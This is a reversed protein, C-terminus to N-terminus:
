VFVNEMRDIVLETRIYLIKAAFYSFYFNLYFINRVINNYDIVFEIFKIKFTRRRRKPLKM